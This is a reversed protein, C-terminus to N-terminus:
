TFNLINYGIDLHFIILKKIFRVYFDFWHGKILIYILFAQKM